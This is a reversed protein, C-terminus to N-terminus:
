THEWIELLKISSHMFSLYDKVNVPWTLKLFHCFLRQKCWAKLAHAQSCLIKFVAENIM